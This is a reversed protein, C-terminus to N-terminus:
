LGRSARQGHQGAAVAADGVTKGELLEMLKLNEEELTGLEQSVSSLPSEALELCIVVLLQLPRGVANPCSKFVFM